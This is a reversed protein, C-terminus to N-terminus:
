SVCLLQPTWIMKVLNARGIVTLPLKCWSRCKDKFKVLLPKLNLNIYDKVKWSIEIGLYRLTHKIQIQSAQNSLPAKLEDIPLLESKDWNIQSGSLQGFISILIM